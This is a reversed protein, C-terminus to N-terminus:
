DYADCLHSLLLFGCKEASDRARKPRAWFNSSAAEADLCENLRPGREPWEVARAISTSCARRVLEFNRPLLNIIASWASLWPSLISSRIPRLLLPTPPPLLPVILPVLLSLPASDRLVPPTPRLVGRPNAAISGWAWRAIAALPPRAAWWFPVACSNVLSSALIAPLFPPSADRPPRRDLPSLSFLLQGVLGVSAFSARIMRAEENKRSGCMGVEDATGIGTQRVVRRRCGYNGRPLALAAGSRQKPKRGFYGIWDGCIRTQVRRCFQFREAGYNCRM